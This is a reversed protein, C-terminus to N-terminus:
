RLQWLRVTTDNGGSALTRGDRSFAVSYVAVAHGTLPRGLPNPHVRDALDWLRVTKDGSSSALTRGDPSFVVSTVSNTHDTLPQGLPRPAIPASSPSPTTTQRSGAGGSSHGPEAAILATATIAAAALVALPALIQPRRLWRPWRRRARPQDDRRPAPAAVSIGTRTPAPHRPADAISPDAQGTIHTLGDDRGHDPQRIPPDQAARDPRVSVDAPQPQPPNAPDAPAPATSSTPSSSIPFDPEGTLMSPSAPPHPFAPSVSPKARGAVAAAITDLLLQRNAEAPRGFLDISVIQGLLGPRPCDEVRIPLLRRAFGLPDAAQAAQWEAQGYVSRLYSDSLLAITRQADAMGQQMRVAWNSGPVFDWAQVLVRYGADELQWAIWEAWARDVATYSIFFDCGPATGGGSAGRDSVAGLGAVMGRPGVQPTDTPEPAARFADWSQFAGGDWLWRVGLHVAARPRRRKRRCAANDCSGVCVM